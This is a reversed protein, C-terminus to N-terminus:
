LLRLLLGRIQKRAHDDVDQERDDHQGREAYVARRLRRSHLQVAPKDSSQHAMGDASHTRYCSGRRAEGRREKTNRRSAGLQTNCGNGGGKKDIHTRRRTCLWALGLWALGLWALGLAQQSLVCWRITDVRSYERCGSANQSVYVETLGPQVMMPSFSGTRRHIGDCTRQASPM